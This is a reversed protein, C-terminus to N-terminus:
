RCLACSVYQVFLAQLPYGMVVRITDVSRNSQRHTADMWQVPVSGVISPSGQALASSHPPASWHIPLIQIELAGVSGRSSVVESPVCSSLSGVVFSSLIGSGVVSGRVSGVVSGRVSVILM